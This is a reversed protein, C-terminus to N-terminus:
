CFQDIGALHYAVLVSVNDTLFTDDGQYHEAIELVGAFFHKALVRLIFREKIAHKDVSDYLHETLMTVIEEKVHAYKTGTSRGMIIVFRHCDEKILQTLQTTVLALVGQAMGHHHEQFVRVMQAKLRHYFPDVIAHFLADKNRFYKYLNSVSIGVENAINRMSTNAFGREYFLREAVALIREQIEPKLVQM